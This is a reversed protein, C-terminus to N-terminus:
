QQIDVTYDSMISAESNEEEYLVIKNEEVQVADINPAHKAPVPIHDDDMDTTTDQM